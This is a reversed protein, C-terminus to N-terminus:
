KYNIIFRTITATSAMINTIPIIIGETMNSFIRILPNTSGGGSLGAMNSLAVLIFVIFGGVIELVPNEFFVKEDDKKEKLLTLNLDFKFNDQM